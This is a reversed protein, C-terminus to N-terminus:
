YDDCNSKGFFDFAIWSKNNRFKGPQFLFVFEDGMKVPVFVIRNEEFYPMAILNKQLFRAFGELETKTYETKGAPHHRETFGDPQNEIAMSALEFVERGKWKASKRFVLYLLWITTAILLVVVLKQISSNQLSIVHLEPRTVVYLGIFVSVSILAEIPGFTACFLAGILLCLIAPILGIISYDPKLKKPFFM